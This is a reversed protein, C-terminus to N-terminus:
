HVLLTIMAAMPPLVIIAVKSHYVRRKFRRKSRVGVGNPDLTRLIEM